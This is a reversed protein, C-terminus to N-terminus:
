PLASLRARGEELSRRQLEDIPNKDDTLIAGAGPEFWRAHGPLGAAALLAAGVRGRGRVGAHRRAAAARRPARVAGRQAGRPRAPRARARRLRERDHGRACRRASRRLRFRRRQGRAMRRPRAERAGRPLVGGDVPAAPDRGPARVRRPHRARVPRRRRALATRADEGAALARGATGSALEFWREGADVVAPDLEVGWLDLALGSPSAGELVRWATGAGLGLVATRWPGSARAWWAPLAFYDYYFGEGILGPRPSWVSQFSDRGENVQLLRLAPESREDAVVRLLQYASERRELERVGDPLDPLRLRSGLLAPAFLVLGLALPAAPRRAWPWLGAAVLALVLAAGLLTRAIGLGPLLAHTTAFTGALSALTSAALVQGAPADPTVAARPRSSSSACRSRRGWCCRPRCSSCSRAALSGWTVLDSAEALGLGAPVFAECVPRAAAPLWGTAAAALALLVALAREPRPRAALRAGLLYGVSLALLVVGIVNTWVAISAGFWPAVLRVATLEIVLTAAGAVAAVCLALLSPIAKV